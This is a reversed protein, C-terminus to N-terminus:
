APAAVPDFTLRNLLRPLNDAAFCLLAQGSVKALGKHRTKRLGGVTKLGGFAEEVRKWRQRSMAYGKSRATRGDVASGTKKRAVHPQIGRELLGAV